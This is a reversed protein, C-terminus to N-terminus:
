DGFGTGTTMFQGVREEYTTIQRDLLEELAALSVRGTEVMAEVEYISDLPYLDDYFGIYERLADLGEEKQGQAFLVLSKYGEIRLFSDDPPLAEAEKLFRGAGTLDHAKYCATAAFALPAADRLGQAAKLFEDRAGGYEGRALLRKGRFM